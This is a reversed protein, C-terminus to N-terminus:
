PRGRGHGSKRLLGLDGGSSERPKYRGLPTAYELWGKATVEPWREEIAVAMALTPTAGNSFWKSVTTQDCRLYEALSVQTDRGEKILAKLALASVSLPKTHPM